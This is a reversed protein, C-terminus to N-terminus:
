GRQGLAWPTAHVSFAGDLVAPLLGALGLARLVRLPDTLGTAGAFGLVHGQATALRRRTLRRLLLGHLEGGDAFGADEAFVCRGCVRWRVGRM